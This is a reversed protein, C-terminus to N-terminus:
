EPILELTLTGNHTGAGTALEAEEILIDITANPFFCGGFILNLIYTIDAFFQVGNAIQGPLLEIQGNLDTLFVRYYIDTAGNSLTFESPNITDGDGSARLQYNKPQNLFAGTVAVCFTDNGNMDGSGPWSGLNIDTLGNILALEGVVVTIDVEGNSTTGTSGQIAAHLNVPTALCVFVLITIKTALYNKFTNLFQM